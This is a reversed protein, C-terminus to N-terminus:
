LVKLIMMYHVTKEYIAKKHMDNGTINM